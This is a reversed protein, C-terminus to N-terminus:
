KYEKFGIYSYEWFISKFIFKYKWNLAKKINEKKYVAKIINKKNM